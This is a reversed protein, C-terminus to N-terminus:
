RQEGKMKAAADIVKQAKANLDEGDVPMSWNDCTIKLAEDETFDFEAKIYDITKNFAEWDSCSGGFLTIMKGGMEMEAKTM